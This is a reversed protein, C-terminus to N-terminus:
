LMLDIIEQSSQTAIEALLAFSQEQTLLANTIEGTTENVQLGFENFSAGAADAATAVGEAMANVSDSVEAITGSAEDVASILIELESDGM